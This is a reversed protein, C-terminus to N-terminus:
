HHVSGTEHFSLCPVCLQADPQVRLREYPISECCRQCQGYDNTYMLQLAREVRRLKAIMRVRTLVALDKEQDVSVRDAPESFVECEANIVASANSSALLLTRQHTLEAWLDLRQVALQPLESPDVSEVISSPPQTKSQTTSSMPEEKGHFLLRGCMLDM